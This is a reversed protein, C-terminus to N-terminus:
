APLDKEIMEDVLAQIHAKMVDDDLEDFTHWVGDIDKFIVNAPVGDQAAEQQMRIRWHFGAHMMKDWAALYKYTPNFISNVKDVNVM